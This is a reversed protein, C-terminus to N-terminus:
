RHALGPTAASASRTGATPATDPTTPAPERRPQPPQPPVPAPNSTQAHDRGAESPRGTTPTAPTPTKPEPTTPPTATPPRRGAAPPLVAAPLSPRPVSSTTGGSRPAATTSQTTWADTAPRGTARPGNPAHLHQTPQQSHAVPLHIGVRRAANALGNQAANPFRGTAAAATGALAVVVAATAAKVGASRMCVSRVRRSRRLASVSTAGVPGLHNGLAELLEAVERYQQPVDDPRAEGRLLRESTLPDLPEVGEM